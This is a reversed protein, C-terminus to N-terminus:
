RARNTSGDRNGHNREKASTFTDYASRTIYGMARDARDAAEAAERADGELRDRRLLAFTVIVFQEGGPLYVIGADNRSAFFTGTKHAVATTEALFRPIRQNIQQRLMIDLAVRTCRESLLEGRMLRELLQGMGRPSAVNNEVTRAISISDWNPGRELLTRLSADAEGTLPDITPGTAHVQRYAEVFSGENEPWGFGADFLGAVGMQVSVSEVGWFRLREMVRDRGIRDLVMDTATNDSVIIMLTLLDRLTLRLGADLDVLVGSPALVHEPRLEIREELACRGEDVQALTELLLPIKFVSAMPYLAEPNMEVTAGSQVQRIYVGFEAVDAEDVHRAITEQLVGLSDSM